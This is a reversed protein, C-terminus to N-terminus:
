LAPSAIGASQALRGASPSVPGWIAHAHMVLANFIIGKREPLGSPRLPIEDFHHEPRIVRRGFQGISVEFVRTSFGESSHRVWGTSMPVSRWVPRVNWTADGGGEEANYNKIIVRGWAWAVGGM